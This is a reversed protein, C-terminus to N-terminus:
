AGKECGGCRQGAAPVKDDEDNDDDAAAPALPVDLVVSAFPLGKPSRM